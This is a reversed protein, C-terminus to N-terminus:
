LTFAEPARAPVTRVTTREAWLALARALALVMVTVNGDVDLLRATLASSNEPRALVAVNSWLWVPLALLGAGSEPNVAVVAWAASSRRPAIPTAPAALSVKVAPFSPGTAAWVARGR